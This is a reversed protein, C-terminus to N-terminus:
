SGSPNLIKRRQPNWFDVRLGSIEFRQHENFVCEVDESCAMHVVGLGLSHGCEDRLVQARVVTGFPIFAQHLKDDTCFCPLRSVLIRTSMNFGGPSLMDFFIFMIGTPDRATQDFSCVKSINWFYKISPIEGEDSRVARRVVLTHRVPATFAPCFGYFGVPMMSRLTLKDKGFKLKQTNQIFRRLQKRSNSPM